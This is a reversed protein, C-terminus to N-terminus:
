PEEPEPSRPTDDPHEATASRDRVEPPESVVPEARISQEVADVSASEVTPASPIVKKRAVSKPRVRKPATKALRKKQITRAASRKARGGKTSRESKAHKRAKARANSKGKRVAPRKKRQAM